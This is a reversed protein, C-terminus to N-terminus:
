RLPGFGMTRLKWRLVLHELLNQNGISAFDGNAGEAGGIFETGLGNGDKGIFVSIRCVSQLGVLRILNARDAM